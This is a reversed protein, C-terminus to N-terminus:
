MYFALKDSRFKDSRESMLEVRISLRKSQPLANKNNQTPINLIQESAKLLGIEGIAYKSSAAKNFTKM